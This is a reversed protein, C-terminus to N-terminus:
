SVHNTNNQRLTAPISGKQLHIVPCTDYECTEALITPAATSSGTGSMNEAPCLLIVDFGADTLEQYQVRIQAVAWGDDNTLLINRALAVSICSVAVVARLHAVGCM